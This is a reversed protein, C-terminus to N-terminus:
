FEHINNLARLSHPEEKKNIDCFLENKHSLLWWVASNLMTGLLLVPSLEKSAAQYSAESYFIFSFDSFLLM